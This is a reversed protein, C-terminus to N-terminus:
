RATKALTRTLDDPPVSSRRPSWVGDVNTAVQGVDSFTLSGNQSTRRRSDQCPRRPASALTAGFPGGAACAVDHADRLRVPDRKKRHLTAGKAASLAVCGFALGLGAALMHVQLRLGV